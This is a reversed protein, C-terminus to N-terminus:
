FQHIYLMVTVLQTVEMVVAMNSVSSRVSYVGHSSGYIGSDNHISESDINVSHDWCGLYEDYGGSISALRLIQQPHFWALGQPQSTSLTYSGTGGGCM